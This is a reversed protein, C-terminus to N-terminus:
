VIALRAIRHLNFCQFMNGWMAQWIVSFNPDVFTSFSKKLLKDQRAEQKKPRSKFPILPLQELLLDVVVAYIAFCCLFLVEKNNKVILQFGSNPPPPSFFPTLCLTGVGQSLQM